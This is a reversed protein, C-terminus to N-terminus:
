TQPSDAAPGRGFFGQPPSQASRQMRGLRNRRLSAWEAPGQEKKKGSFSSRRSASACGLSKKGRKLVGGVESPSVGIAIGLNKMQRARWTETGELAPYPRPSPDGSMSIAM